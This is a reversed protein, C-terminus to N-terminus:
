EYVLLVAVRSLRPTAAKKLPPFMEVGKKQM